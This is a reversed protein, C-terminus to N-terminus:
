TPATAPERGGPRAGGSSGRVVLEPSILVSQHSASAAAITM